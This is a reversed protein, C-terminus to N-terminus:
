VKLASLVDLHVVGERVRCIVEGREPEDPIDEPLVVELRLSRCRLPFLLADHLTQLEGDPADDSEPRNLLGRVEDPLLPDSSAVLRDGEEGGAVILPELLELNPASSRFSGLIGDATEGLEPAIVRQGMDEPDVVPHLESPRSSPDRADTPEQFEEQVQVDGREEGGRVLRVRVWVDLPVVPGDTIEPSRVVERTGVHEIPLDFPEIRLVLRVKSPLELFPERICRESMERIIIGDLRADEARRLSLLDDEDAEDFPPPFAPIDDPDDEEIPEDGDGICENTLVHERAHVKFGRHERHGLLMITHRADDKLNWVRIRQSPPVTKNCLWGSPRLFSM